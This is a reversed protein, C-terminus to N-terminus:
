DLEQQRLLLGGVAALEMRELVDGRQWTGRLLRAWFEVDRRRLRWFGELERSALAIRQHRDRDSRDARQELKVALGPTLGAMGAVTLHHDGEVHETVLVRPEGAVNRARRELFIEAREILGHAVALAAARLVIAIVVLRHSPQAREREVALDLRAAGPDAGGVLHLGDDAAHEARDALELVGRQLDVEAGDREGVRLLRHAQEGLL